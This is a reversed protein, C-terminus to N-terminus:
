HNLPTKFSFLVSSFLAFPLFHAIAPYICRASLLALFMLCQTCALRTASSATLSIVLFSNSLKLLLIVATQDTYNFRAM